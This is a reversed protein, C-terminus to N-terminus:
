VAAAVIVPTTPAPTGGAPEETVMLRVTGSGIRFANFVTPDNGVLGVSIPQSRGSVLAWLQYTENAPLVPLDKSGAWYAVGGSGRAVTVEAGSVDSTLRITSSPAALASAVLPALGGSRTAAQFSQVQGNLNGVELSLAVVAAVVAAAVAGLPVLVSLRRRRRQRALPTFALLEGPVGPAPLEQLESGIRDWLGEPADAGSAGLLSAVERHAEVEARCRPCDRLHREVADAEDPDLADLAYAGLLEEVEPHEM